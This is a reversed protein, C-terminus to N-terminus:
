QFTSNFHRATIYQWSKCLPLCNLGAMALLQLVSIANVFDIELLHPLPDKDKHDDQLKITNKCLIVPLNPIYQPIQIYIKWMIHCRLQKTDVCLSKQPIQVYYFAQYRCIILKNTDVCLLHSPILYHTKHYLTFLFFIGKKEDM